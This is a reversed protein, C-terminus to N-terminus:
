SGFLPRRGPTMRHASSVPRSELTQLGSLDKRDHVQLPAQDSKVADPLKDDKTSATQNM